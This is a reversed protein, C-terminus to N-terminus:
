AFSTSGYCRSRCANSGDVFPHNQILSHSMAAAKSALDPM